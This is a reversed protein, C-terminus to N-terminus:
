GRDDRWHGQFHHEVLTQKSRSRSAHSHPVGTAFGDIPLVLTDGFLQPERIGHLTEWTIRPQGVGTGAVHNLHEYVVETWAAPGTIALVDKDSLKGALFGGKLKAGKALIRDLMTWLTPHNPASALTWQCFQVEYTTDEVPPSSDSELGVILRTEARFKGPVWDGIPQVLTTDMDSYVGGHLALALYRMFDARLVRRQMGNYQTLADRAFDLTRMEPAADNIRAAGGTDSLSDSVSGGEVSETPGTTQRFTDPYIPVRQLVEGAKPTAMTVLRRVMSLAGGKDLLTYSYSPSRSLWTGLSTVSLVSPKFDLYIQWIKAPIHPLHTTTTTDFEDVAMNAVYKAAEAEAASEEERQKTANIAPVGGWPLHRMGGPVSLGHGQENLHMMGIAFLFLGALILIIRRFRAVGAFRPRFLFASARKPVSMSAADSETCWAGAGALRASQEAIHTQWRSLMTDQPSVTM